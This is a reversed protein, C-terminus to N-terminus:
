PTLREFEVVWVWPNSEWPYGRKANISDWLRVFRDIVVSGRVLVPAVLTADSNSPEVGEALADAESIEQVREVRVDTVELWLRAVKKPMFISRKWQNRADAGWNHKRASISMYEPGDARYIYADPSDGAYPKCWAEKVWLRDGPVGYPCCGDPMYAHWERSGSVCTTSCGLQQARKPIPWVWRAGNWEPQPKVVRRTQTKLDDLVARVSEGTFIIGREKM